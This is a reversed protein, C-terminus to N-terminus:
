IFILDSKTTYEESHTTLPSIVTFTNPAIKYRTDQLVTNGTGTIYYVIEYCTHAQPPVIDGAYHIHSMFFDISINNM